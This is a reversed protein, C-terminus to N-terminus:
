LIYFSKYKHWHKSIFSHGWFKIDKIDSNTNSNKNDVKVFIFMHFLESKFLYFKWM